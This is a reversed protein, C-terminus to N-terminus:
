CKCVGKLIMKKVGAKEDQSERERERQTRRLNWIGKGTQGRM